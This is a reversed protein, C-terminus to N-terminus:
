LHGDQCVHLVGVPLTRDGHAVPTGTCSGADVGGRGLPACNVLLSPPPLCTPLHHLGRWEQIIGWTSTGHEPKKCLNKNMTHQWDTIRMKQTFLKLFNKHYRFVIALRLDKHCIFLLLLLLSGEHEQQSVFIFLYLLCLLGHNKSYLKFVWWTGLFKKEFKEVM